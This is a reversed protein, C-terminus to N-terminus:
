RKALIEEYKKLKNSIGNLETIYEKMRSIYFDKMATMYAQAEDVDRLEVHDTKDNLYAEVNNSIEFFEYQTLEQPQRASRKTSSDKASTPSTDGQIGKQSKLKQLERFFKIFHYSLTSSFNPTKM